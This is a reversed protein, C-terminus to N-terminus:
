KVRIRLVTFWLKRSIGYIGTFIGHEPEKHASGSIGARHRLSFFGADYLTEGIIEMLFLM